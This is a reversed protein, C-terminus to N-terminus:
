TQVQKMRKNDEKRNTKSYLATEISVKLTHEKIFEAFYEHAHKLISCHNGYM